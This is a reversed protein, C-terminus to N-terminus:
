QNSTETFGEFLDDIEIYSNSYKNSLIKIHDNNKLPTYKAFSELEDISPWLKELSLETQQKSQILVKFGGLNEPRCLMDISHLNEQKENINLSINRLHNQMQVIGTNQLFEAQDILGINFIGNKAGSEAAATGGYLSNSAM